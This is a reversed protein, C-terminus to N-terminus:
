FRNFVYTLLWAGLVRFKARVDNDTCKYNDINIRHLSDIKVDFFMIAQCTLARSPRLNIMYYFVLQVFSLFLLRLPCLAASTLQRVSAERMRRRM